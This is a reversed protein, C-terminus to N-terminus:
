DGTDLKRGRTEGLIGGQGVGGVTLSQLPAPNVDREIVSAPHTVDAPSSLGRQHTPVSPRHHMQLSACLPCVSPVHGWQHHLVFQSLLLTVTCLIILSFKKCLM